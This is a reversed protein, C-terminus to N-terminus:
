RRRCSRRCASVGSPSRGPALAPTPSPRATSGVSAAILRQVEDVAGRAIGLPTVGLAPGLVCFLPLRWLPGDAWSQDIFTLSHARDVTIDQVSTHHSGTGCLGPADWTTEVTMESMPVFVLRPIPEHTEGDTFWYSGVGIHDSHLCNSSFGWRGSLTLGDGNARVQGFPGFASANGQDPEAWVQAAVDPELYGSFVNSGMGIAACWGTSGDVSAIREIADPWEPGLVEIELEPNIRRVAEAAAEFPSEAASDPILHGLEAADDDRERAGRLLAGL